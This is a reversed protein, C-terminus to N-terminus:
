DLLGGINAQKAYYAMRKLLKERPVDIFKLACEFKEAISERLANFFEEHDDEVENWDFPIRFNVCDDAMEYVGTLVLGAKPEHVIVARTLYAEVM